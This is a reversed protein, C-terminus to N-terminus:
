EQEESILFNITVIKLTVNLNNVFYSLFLKHKKLTGVPIRETNATQSNKDFNILRVKLISETEVKTNTMIENIKPDNVFEFEFTFNGEVEDPLTIKFSENNPVCITTSEVLKLNGIYVEM